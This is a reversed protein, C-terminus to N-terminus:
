LPQHSTQAPLQANPAPATAKRTQRSRLPQEIQPQPSPSLSTQVVNIASDPSKTYVYTYWPNVQKLLHFKVRGQSLSIDQFIFAEM